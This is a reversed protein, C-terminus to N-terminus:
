AYAAPSQAWQPSGSLVTASSVNIIAGDDRLLGLTLTAFDTPDEIYFAHRFYTTIYKNASSGGYSVM